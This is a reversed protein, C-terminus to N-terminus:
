EGVASRREEFEDKDIEGYAFRDRLIDLPTNGPPPYLADQGLGSLWLVVHVVVVVIAALFLIMMLPGFFMWWGGGAMHPGYFPGAQQASAASSLVMMSLLAPTSGFCVKKVLVQGLRTPFYVM